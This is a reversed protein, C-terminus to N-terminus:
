AGASLVETEGFALRTLPAVSAADEAGDPFLLVSVLNMVIAVVDERSFEGLSEDNVALVVELSKNTQIGDNDTKYGVTRLRASSKQTPSNKTPGYSGVRLVTPRSPSGSLYNYVTERGNAVESTLGAGFGARHIETFQLEADTGTSAFPLTYTIAM